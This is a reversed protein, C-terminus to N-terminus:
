EVTLTLIRSLDTRNMMCSTIESILSPRRQLKQIVTARLSAQGALPIKSTEPNIMFILNETSEEKDIYTYAFAKEVLLLEGAGVEKTTFLGRGRLVVPQISVPGVYTANDLYPPRNMTDQEQMKEIRYRGKEQEAGREIARNLEDKAMKNDPFKSLLLKLVECCSRYQQM